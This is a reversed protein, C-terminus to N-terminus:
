FDINPIKSSEMQIDCYNYDFPFRALNFYCFTTTSFRSCMSLKKVAPWVDVYQLKLLSSVVSASLGNRFIITPTWLKSVDTIRAITYNLTENPSQLNPVTALSRLRQDQWSLCLLLDSTVSQLLVTTLHSSVEGVKYEGDQSRGGPVQEDQVSDEGRTTGERRDTDDPRQLQRARPLAAALETRAGQGGVRHHQAGVVDIWDCVCVNRRRTQTKTTRTTTKREGGGSAM